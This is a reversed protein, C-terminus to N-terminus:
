KNRIYFKKGNVEISRSNPFYAEMLFSISSKVSVIKTKLSQMKFNMATIESTYKRAQVNLMLPFSLAVFLVGGVVIARLLGTGESLSHTREGELEEVNIKKTLLNAKLSM